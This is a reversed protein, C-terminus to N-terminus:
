KRSKVSFATILSKLLVETEAASEGLLCAIQQVTSLQRDIVQQAKQIVAEKSLSPETIDILVAGAIMGKEVPFLTMRFIRELISIERGVIEENTQLVGAFYEAIPMLKEIRIGELSGINDFMSLTESGCMAAFSRNCEIVKLDNDVMVVGLPLSKILVNAKRQALKRMYSVCMASEARGEVLARALSRCDNYGCGGCNLEDEPKTKGLSKLAETIGLLSSVKVESVNSEFTSIPLLQAEKIKNDIINNNAREEVALIRLLSGDKKGIAPGNICGGQCALLELFLPQKLAKVDINDLAKCINELGSVTIMRNDNKDMLPIIGRIMGGDIPYLGGIGAENPYFDSPSSNTYEGETILKQLEDFTLAADLLEPNADAELKKAICPGAFVVACDPNKEKLQAAHTLLPSTFPTLFGTLEPKYRQIFRV